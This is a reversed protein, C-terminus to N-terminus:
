TKEYINRLKEEGEIMIVLYFVSVLNVFCIEHCIEHWFPM